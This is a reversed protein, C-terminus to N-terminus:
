PQPEQSDSSKEEATELSHKMILPMQFLTFAVTIPMIGWVKFAVWTDTSFNRWVVENLIALVLFFLGWRLTLKRWGEADLKFAQDFVYGLLSKGFALGGLLVGGFLANVITPKMKIFTDNHLWLTLTGFALVVVGSVLPMIPLTRTMAWSVSLALVTAAMFLATAVFIPGGIITLAPVRELLWEGRANAFFFVLLPGLELVLKLLPPLQRRIPDARTAPDSPDREFIPHEM